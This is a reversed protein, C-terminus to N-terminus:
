ADTQIFHVSLLLVPVGLAPAILLLVTETVAFAIFLNKSQSGNDLRVAVRLKASRARPNSELEYPGPVQPKKM